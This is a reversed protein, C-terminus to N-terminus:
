KMIKEARKQAEKIEEPPAYVPEPIQSVRKIAESVVQPHEKVTEATFDVYTKLGEKVEQRHREVLRRGYEEDGVNSIIAQSTKVIPKTGKKMGKESKFEDHLYHRVTTDGLGTVDVIKAVVENKESLM